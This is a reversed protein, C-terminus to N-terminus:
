EVVFDVLAMGQPRARDQADLRIVDGVGPFVFELAGEQVTM